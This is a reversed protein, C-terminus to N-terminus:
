IQMWDSPVTSCCAAETVLTESNNEWNVLTITKKNYINCGYHFTLTLTHDSDCFRWVCVCMSTPRSTLQTDILCYNVTQITQHGSCVAPCCSPKDELCVSWGSLFLRSPLPLPLPLATFCSSPLNDLLCVFKSAIIRWYQIRNCTLPRVHFCM